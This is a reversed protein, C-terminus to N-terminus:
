PALGLDQAVLRPLLVTMTGAQKMHGAAFAADEGFGFFVDGRAAGKIATGTDQAIMLRRFTHSGGGVTPVTTDIWMPLGLLWVARDVALSRGPSLQVHQAGIAGLEPNELDAERFFIFSENRWMLDRADEPHAKMWDRIAQMSMAERTLTGSEVLLAGISTYPRGSKAAFALRMSSGDALRVRGSGQVHIFFADAWDELWVLELGRGALAGQEIEARSFYPRAEGQEYRGYAMGTEPHITEPYAVLDSPRRYIPVTFRADPKRSGNVEPEFYGTFLGEPRSADHVRFAMFQKEFYDRAGTASIADHCLGLWQDRRGGFLTTKTFGSGEALIERCSLRFAALAATHDDDAWGNVGKLPIAELRLSSSLSM